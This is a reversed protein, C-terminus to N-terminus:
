FIKDTKNLQITFISGNGLSSELKIKGHHLEIIEKALALGLGHGSKERVNSDPSRYFKEFIHTQDKEAVGIGTDSVRIIIKDDLEEAALSVSGGSNNYKVANTLLNNLAIRLLDKDVQINPLTRPLLLEFHITNESGSRAISNFTDTLFDIFKVRQLNLVINGAEIKTINLLNSILLALREVEDNITNIADIRQNDSLDELDLLSEAYLHIINLPSKLEHSVHSIFEDRAQNALVERTRDHFLVLTGCSKENKKPALLPYASIKITKGPHNKPIYEISEPRQLPRNNNYYKALLEIINDNDCWNDPKTGLVTDLSGDILSIFKSNAFTGVGSEDMVLIADPLTQLALEFRRRQYSLALTASQAKINQNNLQEFRQDIMGMFSKFSLLFDQSDDFLGEMAEMQQKQLAENIKASAQRLPKLERRILLYTLPVLLFIPLAIQAFFPLQHLDLEYGPQFYGLRIYGALESKSLIPARFEILDGLETALVQETAWLTKKNGLSVDPIAIKSSTTIALPDGNLNVLTAYAFDPSVQRNNLLELITSRGQEPVILEIPLNSLLRVLNRGEAKLAEIHSKHNQVVMQTAILFIVGLTAIIMVFGFRESAIIKM